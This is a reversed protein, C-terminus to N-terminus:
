TRCAGLKKELAKVRKALSDLRRLQAMSKRWAANEVGPVNGSYVGSQHLSHTILTKATVHVQDSLELHGVVGSAGALTCAQGIRTSGAIGSLAAIATDEGIEVNHAVQVLNDIKVGDAIRTDRLSGRDICSNAGIEVDNGIVVTGLQPVRVWSSGEQAFGFGDAGIVAGPLVRVREGLIVGEGLTVNAALFTDRGICCGSGIVVGPGISVGEGLQTGAEIVVLPGVFVSDPVLVGEAVVASPHVGPRHAQEPYLMSAARAYLLYPNPGFIAACPADALWEPRIIVVSARTSALHKHYRRNALFSLAGTDADELPALHDIETKPDGRFEAGLRAALGQLKLRRSPSQHM